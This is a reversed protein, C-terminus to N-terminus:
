FCNGNACAVVGTVVFTFGIAAIAALGIYLANNKASKNRRWFISATTLAQVVAVVVFVTGTSPRAYSFIPIRLHSEAYQLYGAAVVIPLSQVLLAAGIHGATWQRSQGVAFVPGVLAAVSAVLVVLALTFVSM